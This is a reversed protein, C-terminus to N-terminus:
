RLGEKRKINEEIRKIEKDFRLRLGEKRKINEEIKKIEKDFRSPNSSNYIYPNQFTEDLLIQEQLIEMRELLEKGEQTDYFKKLSYNNFCYIKVDGKAKFSLFGKSASGMFDGNSNKLFGKVYGRIANAEYVMNTVDVDNLMITYTKFPEKDKINIKNILVGRENYM